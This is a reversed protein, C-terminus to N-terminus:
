IFSTLKEVKSRLSPIDIRVLSHKAQLEKFVPNLSYKPVGRCVSRTVPIGKSCLGQISELVVEVPEEVMSSLEFVSCEKNSYLALFVEQEKRSLSVNSLGGYPSLFLEVRELRESLKDLRSELLTLFEYCASIEETNKNISELHNDLEEKVKSFSNKVGKEVRYIDRAIFRRLM